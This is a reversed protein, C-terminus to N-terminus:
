NLYPDKLVKKYCDIFATYQKDFEACHSAVKLTRRHLENKDMYYAGKMEEFLAARDALYASDFGTLGYFTNEESTLRYVGKYQHSQMALFLDPPMGMDAFYVPVEQEFKELAKKASPNANADVEQLVKANSDSITIRGRHIGVSYAPASRVVGSSLVLICASACQGTVFIHAHAARLIRGIKMAALGDGGSSDLLVILGAPIPDGKVQDVALRVSDVLKRSINGNIGLVVIQGDAQQTISQIKSSDGQKDYRKDLAISPGTGQERNVISPQSAQMSVMLEANITHINAQVLSSSGFAIAFLSMLRFINIM